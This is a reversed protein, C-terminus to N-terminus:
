NPTISNVWTNYGLFGYTTPTSFTGPPWGRLFHFSFDDGTSKFVYGLGNGSTDLIFDSSTNTDVYLDGKYYPCQVSLVPNTLTSTYAGFVRNGGSDKVSGSLPVGSGVVSTVISVNISGRWFQFLRAWMEIGLYAGGYTTHPDFFSVTNFTDSYPQDRHLLDRLTNIEEGMVYGSTEYAKFSAHFPEFASAAFDERPNSQVEFDSVFALDFRSVEMTGSTPVFEKEIHCGVKYDSAGAKYVNMYVPIVLSPNPESIGLMLFYVNWVPTNTVKTMVYKEMYPVVFSYQTDARVEIVEHYCDEWTATAADSIYFVGRMTMFTSAYIYIKFKFGGSWYLFNQSTTDVFSNVASEPGVVGVLLSSTTTNNITIQRILQPTGFINAMTMEDKTVGGVDPKTSIANEGDLAMKLKLSVGRGYVFDSYPNIKVIETLATTVPKDLGLMAVSGVAGALTEFTNVVNDVFSSAGIIAKGVTSSEFRSSITGKECKTTAEKSRTLHMKGSEVVFDKVFQTKKLKSGVPAEHPLMTEFELFQATVVVQADAVDGLVSVLPNNVIIRYRGMEGSVFATLNMFRLQSIYPADLVGTESASVLMHPFGSSTYVDTAPFADSYPNPTYMVMLSGHNTKSTVIRVGFRIGGRGGYFDDLKEALFPFAVLIDPFDFQGLLTNTADASSWTTNHVVYTRDYAGNFNFIEANMTTQPNLRIESNVASSDIPGADQFTGMQVQQTPAIENASVDNLGMNSTSMVMDQGMKSVGSQVVFDSVFNRKNPFLDDFEDKWPNNLTSVRLAECKVEEKSPPKAADAYSKNQVQFGHPVFKKALCDPDYKRCWMEHWPLFNKRIRDYYDPCRDEVISMFQEGVRYYTEEDFHSLEVFFSVTTALQLDEKREAGKVWYTMETIINMDLPAMVGGVFKRGLFRIDDLTHHVDSDSKTFDTYTMDFCEKYYKAFDSWRLGKRAIAKIIDDGYIALKFETISLRMKETLIYYTMVLNVFSNMLSTMAEGSPHGFALYIINYMIHEAKIM